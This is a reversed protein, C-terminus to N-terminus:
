WGRRGPAAASRPNGLLVVLTLVLLFLFLTETLVIGSHFILNPWLAWVAAAALGARVGALRRGLVFVLGITAVSLAVNFWIAVDFASATGPLGGCWGCTGGLAM